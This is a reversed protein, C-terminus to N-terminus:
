LWRLHLKHFDTQVPTWVGPAEEKLGSLFQCTPAPYAPAFTVGVSSVRETIDDRLNAGRLARASAAWPLGAYARFVSRVRACALVTIRAHPVPSM